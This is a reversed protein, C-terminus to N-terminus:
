GELLLEIVAEKKMCKIKEWPVSYTDSYDFYHHRYPSNTILIVKTNFQIALEVELGKAKKDFTVLYDATIILKEMEKLREKDKWARGVFTPPLFRFSRTSITPNNLEQFLDSTEQDNKRSGIIVARRNIRM